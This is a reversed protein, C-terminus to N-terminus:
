KCADMKVSKNCILQKNKGGSYVSTKYIVDYIRLQWM